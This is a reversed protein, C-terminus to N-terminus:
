ANEQIMTLRDRTIHGELTPTEREWDVDDEREQLSNTRLNPAEVSTDCPTLDIVNFTNSGEFDLPMDVQYANDNIKKLIKFPDDGRLLFKSKRLHPLRFLTEMRLSFKM